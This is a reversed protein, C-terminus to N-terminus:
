LNGARDFMMGHPACYPAVEIFGARKRQGLDIVAIQTGPRTNTGVIGSGYISVYATKRDPALAVEHPFDPLKLM